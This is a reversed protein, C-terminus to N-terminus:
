TRITGFISISINFPLAVYLFIVSLSLRSQTMFLSHSIAKSFSISVFLFLAYFHLKLLRFLTLSFSRHRFFLRSSYRLVFLFFFKSIYVRWVDEEKNKVKKARSYFLAYGKCPKYKKKNGVHKFFTFCFVSLFNILNALKSKM